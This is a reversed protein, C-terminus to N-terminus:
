FMLLGLQLGNSVVSKSFRNIFAFFLRFKNPSCVFFDRLDCKQWNYSTLVAFFAKLDSEIWFFHILRAILM